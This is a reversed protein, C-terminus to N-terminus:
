LEEIWKIAEKLAIIAEEKTVIIGRYSEYEPVIAIKGDPLAIISIVKGYDNTILEIGRGVVTDELKWYEM